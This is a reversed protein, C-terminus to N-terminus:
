LGGYRRNRRQFDVLAQLLHEKRFDPWLVDCTWFESYASQWLLFNSLRQEGSPRIVLDPDPMGHTYLYLNLMEENVQEKKIEGILVRDIIKHVAQIIDRRGGYNLAINLRLGTNERTVEEVRELALQAFLPLKSIEGIAEIKVGKEHLEELEKEAYEVLLNMLFDVEETPRKWNETSFAYVTLIQIGLEGCTNVLEKLAAMGARHGATRPLGRSVAWRGNGDMIVAVHRPLYKADIVSNCNNELRELQKNRGSLCDLGAM